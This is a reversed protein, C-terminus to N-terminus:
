TKGAGNPGLLGYIEGPVVQFSLDAVAAAAGFFKSLSDVVVAPTSMAGPPYGAMPVLARPAVGRDAGRDSRSSRGRAIRPTATFIATTRSGSSGARRARAM